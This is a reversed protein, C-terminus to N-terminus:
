VVPQASHQSNLGTACATVAAQDDARGGAEGLLAGALVSACLV